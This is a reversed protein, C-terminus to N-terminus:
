PCGTAGSADNICVSSAQDNWGSGVNPNSGNQEFDFHAGVDGGDWYVRGRQQYSKWSSMQDNFGYYSLDISGNGALCLMTGNRDYGVNDFLQMANGDSCGYTVGTDPSVAMQRRAADQTLGCSATAPQDGNLQVNIIHCTAPTIGADALVSTLRVIHAANPRAAHVAGPALTTALLGAIALSAVVAKSTFRAMTTNGKEM